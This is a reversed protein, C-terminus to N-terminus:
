GRPYAVAAEADVIGRGYLPSFGGRTGLLPDRSTALIAQEVDALDRGQGYLIAAVGAVHPTAMSTGAFAAYDTGEGCEDTGTGRPVTSLIDDSCEGGLLRGSGGPAAVGKGSLKVPLESFYSKQEDRDTAGVCISDSSFAPDNCVLTSSNGAAAVTLTGKDRAYQIADMMTTDLGLISFIQTGPLGGLSLNVVDADHDAAYRIGEAIDENTGSGDELVKIPMVQADPAVGAVGIGNDATGVITGAVHTGHVDPDQGVGDQGQWSGDGCSGTAEGCVFDAGPVLRGQLDPHGLDVGTDVVAVVVGAGRGSSWAQEAHVQDLGWLDPRLPDNTAAGASGATAVLGIACAAAAFPATWRTMM